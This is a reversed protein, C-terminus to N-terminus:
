IFMLYIERVIITKAETVFFSFFMSMASTM